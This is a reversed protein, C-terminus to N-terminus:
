LHEPSTSGLRSRAPRSFRYPQAPPQGSEARRCPRGPGGARSGECGSLSRISRRIRVPWGVVAMQRSPKSTPAPLSCTSRADSSNCRPAPAIECSPMPIVASSWWRDAPRAFPKRLVACAAAQEFPEGGSLTIGDTDPVRMLRQALAEPDLLHRPDHPHTHPNFCGPCGRTCGQVWIVSRLGPGNVRSRLQIDAVNLFLKDM